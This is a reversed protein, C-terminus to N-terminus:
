VELWKNKFTYYTIISGIIFTLIVLSISEESGIILGVIWALTIFITRFNFKKKFLIYGCILGSIFINAFKLYISQISYVISIAIILFLLAGFEIYWEFINIQAKKKMINLYTM